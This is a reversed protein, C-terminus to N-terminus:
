REGYVDGARKVFADVLSSCTEEFFPGFMVDVMRSEFEFELELSVKCGEDGLAEFRWGGDLHRFPGGLLELGISEGPVRANRTTFAKSINGKQLELTAEVVEESRSHEESRNCWPLFDAYASVDDVLDFMESARYPVLASRQVHRMAPLTPKGCAPIPAIRSCNGGASLLVADQRIIAARM